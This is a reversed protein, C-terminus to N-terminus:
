GRNKTENDTGSFQIIFEFDNASSNLINILEPIKNFGKNIRAEGIFWYCTKQLFSEKM